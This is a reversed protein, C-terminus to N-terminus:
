YWANCSYMDLEILEGCIAGERVRYSFNGDWFASCGRADHKSKELRKQIRACIM